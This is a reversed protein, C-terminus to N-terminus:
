PDTVPANNNEKLPKMKALNKMIQTPKCQHRCEFSFVGTWDKYVTKKKKKYTFIKVSLVTKLILILCLQLLTM